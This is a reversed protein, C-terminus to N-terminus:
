QGIVFTKGDNLTWDSSDREFSVLINATNFHLWIEFINPNKEPM